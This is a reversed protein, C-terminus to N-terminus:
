EGRERRRKKREEAQKDQHRLMLEKRGMYSFYWTPQGHRVRCGRDHNGPKDHAFYDSDDDGTKFKHMCDLCLGDFNKRVRDSASLVESELEHATYNLNPVCTKCLATSWAPDVRQVRGDPGRPSVKTLVFTYEDLNDLLENLTRTRDALSFLSKIGTDLLSSKHSFTMVDLCEGKHGPCPASVVPLWKELRTRQSGRAASLQSIVRDPVGRMYPDYNGTPNGNEIQGATNYAIYKTVSHFIQPCDFWYAPALVSFARLKGDVGKEEFYKVNGTYYRTFWGALLSMDKSPKLDDEDNDNDLEPGQKRNLLYKNGFHIAWWVDRIDIDGNNPTTRHLADMWVKVATVSENDIVLYAGEQKGRNAANTDLLSTYHRLCARSVLITATKKLPRRGDQSVGQEYHREKVLLRLDGGIHCVYQSTEM